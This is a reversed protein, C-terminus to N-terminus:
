RRTQLLFKFMWHGKLFQEAEVCTVTYTRNGANTKEPGTQPATNFNEGEGPWTGVEDPNIIHNFSM